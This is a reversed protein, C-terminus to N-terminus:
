DFMNLLRSREIRVRPESTPPMSEPLVERSDVHRARPQPSEQTALEIRQQIRALLTDLKEGLTVLRESFAEDTMPPDRTTTALPAARPRIFRQIQPLPALSNM